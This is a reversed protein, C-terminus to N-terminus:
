VTQNGYCGLDRGLDDVVVVVVNKKVAALSADSAFSYVLLRALRAIWNPM